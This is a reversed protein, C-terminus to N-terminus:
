NKDFRPIVHKGTLELTQMGAETRAAVAGCLVEPSSGHSLFLAFQM